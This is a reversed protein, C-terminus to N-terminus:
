CIIGKIRLAQFLGLDGWREYKNISLQTYVTGYDEYYYVGSYKGLYNLDNVNKNVRM